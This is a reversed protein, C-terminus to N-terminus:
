RAPHSGCQPWYADVCTSRIDYQFYDQALSSHLRRPSSLTNAGNFSGTMLGRLKSVKTLLLALKIQGGGQCLQGTLHSEASPYYKLPPSPSLKNKDLSLQQGLGLISQQVICIYM